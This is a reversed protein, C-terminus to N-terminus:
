RVRPFPKGQGQCFSLTIILPARVQNTARNLSLIRGAGSPKVDRCNKNRSLGSCWDGSDSRYRLASLRLRCILRAINRAHPQLRSTRSVREYLKEMELRELGLVKSRTGRVKKRKM